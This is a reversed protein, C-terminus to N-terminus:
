LVNRKVGKFNTITIKSVNKDVPLKRSSQSLFTCGYYFEEKRVTSNKYTIEASLDDPNLTIWKVVGNAISPNSKYVQLSDQNQTAIIINEKKATHVTALAKADGKVFFGSQQISLSKFNGKGDGLLCLGNFADHRGSYPDMGYDNGVLLVDLNGDANVDKALMGFVPACEAEVPLPKVEFKGNGKNEIYVSSMDTAQLIMAGERDKENLIDNATALGYSKYTPFKKRIYLMQSVMDDRTSMPFSQMTGDTAKMYCFVLPDLLGNNDFDKAYMVLPQKELAKYNSNYGLNGAIYDIDGDNDFDGGVLSNWWGTHQETGTQKLRVLAKGTNEFFTVGMWEGTVVLDVKGDNNFDTWLADTVMGIHQLEPCYEKTIDVFKGKVNKLLMSKPSLPYAGSVVRGGVFLDLYGDGNFDAARVCSGNTSDSPLLDQSKTFIGKGNNIYLRDNSIPHNPPIEYSGSVLYLDLDKDNDADFFLVGMDEYLRDDKQVFRASDLKFKGEGNQMFFVGPNGSSGGIYFDEFGNNDIDGVAIGPGYQSLKHPLTRQINYDVFDREKPKFHINYQDNAKTLYTQPVTATQKHETANKHEVTILQDATINTLKQEKGDPWIVLL